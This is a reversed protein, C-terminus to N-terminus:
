HASSAAKEETGARDWGGVGDQLALECGCGGPCWCSGDPQQPAAALSKAAQFKEFDRPKLPCRHLEHQGGPFGGETLKRSQESISGEGRWEHVAM